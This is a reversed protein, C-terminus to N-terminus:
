SWEKEAGSDNPGLDLSDTAEKTFYSREALETIVFVRRGQENEERSVLGREALTKGRKGVLQYSKDLEVAIEGAYM